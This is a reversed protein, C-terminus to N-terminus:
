KKIIRWAVKSIDNDPKRSHTITYTQNYGINKAIIRCNSDILGKDMMKPLWEQSTDNYTTIDVLLMSGNEKLRPLLFNAIHEYANKREFQDKTVFECIAKFSVILDYTDTIIDNLISLDYFDDIHIPIVDQEIHLGIHKKFEAFVKEFLKLAFQNGDLAKVRVKKLNPRLEDLVTLLGFIEGGTGSGFDFISLEEQNAFESNHQQLYESFIYCSETYSRPFYTGLYNLTKEKNDDINTMDSYRPQYHAKLKDFILTDLWRPFEIITEQKM